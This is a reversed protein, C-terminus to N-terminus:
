RKIWDYTAALNELTGFIYGDATLVDSAQAESASLM